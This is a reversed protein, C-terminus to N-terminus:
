KQKQLQEFTEIFAMYVKSYPDSSLAKINDEITSQDNRVLPGTLAAKHDTILNKCIAELYPYGVQEPIQFRHSLEMFLKSWLLTTFNGSMVCLAHYFGRDAEDIYYHPNILGPFLETFAKKGKELIFPIRQYELYTYFTSGFTMFPHVCLAKNTILSGSCHILQKSRLAPMNDIFTVIDDDKILLLIVDSYKVLEDLEMKSSKARSWNRVSLNSLTFYRLLHNALKGGGIIGYVPQRNM